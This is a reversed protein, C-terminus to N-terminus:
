LRHPADIGLLKLSQELRDAYVSILNARIAQRQDGIVRNSEYFQSFVQSLDYIYTCLLHPSLSASAATVVPNFRSLKLALRRESPTFNDAVAKKPTSIKALISRARAHAYQLYLGSNGLLSVSESPNYVVDPGLRQKLFSYKVAALVTSRNPTLKEAILAQETASLLDEAKLYNGIRSSMKRGGEMRVLGHTLHTTNSVLEPAFQELAKSVVAMYQEIDNGTIIVSRDYNFDTKKLIALGIEKAEYTPLGQSNIFVRTHLGFREGNFIVAGSSKEFVGKELQENVIKLGIPAAESEPYYKDFYINLEGYFRDFEDYSWQRTIWYIRALPSEHDADSQIKYIRKNLETIERKSDPDNEYATNGNIYADSMWEMRKPQPVENLREPNSGGLEKLIAWMSKAVHLGVDGGYNVRYVKAGALSLLNAISDGIFSTYLHGVHLIKFPNPDSFEVVAVQNILPQKPQEQMMKILQADTLTINVFGPGAVGATKVEGLLRDNIAKALDAALELPNLQNQQALKLAINTSFDGFREDPYDLEVDTKLGYKAFVLEAIASKLTEEM